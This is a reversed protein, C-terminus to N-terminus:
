FSLDATFDCFCCQHIMNIDTIPLKRQNKALFNILIIKTGDNQSFNSSKVTINDKITNDDIKKKAIYRSVIKSKKLNSKIKM